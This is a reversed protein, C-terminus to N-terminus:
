TRAPLNPPLAVFAKNIQAFQKTGILYVNDLDLPRRARPSETAQRPVETAAQKIEGKATQGSCFVLRPVENSILQRSM